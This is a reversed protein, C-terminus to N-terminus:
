GQKVRACNNKTRNPTRNLNNNRHGNYHETAQPKGRLENIMNDHHNGLHDQRHQNITHNTVKQNGHHCNQLRQKRISRCRRRLFRQRGTRIHRTRYTCLQQRYVGARNHERIQKRNRHSVISEEVRLRQFQNCDHKRDKDIHNQRNDHNTIPLDNDLAHILHNAIPRGRKYGASAPIVHVHRIRLNGCIQALTHAARCTSDTSSNAGFHRRIVRRFRCFLFTHGIFCLAIRFFIFFAVDFLAILVLGRLVRGHRDLGTFLLAATLRIIVSGTHTAFLRRITNAATDFVVHCVTPQRISYNRRSEAPRLSTHLTRSSFCRGMSTYTVSVAIRILITVIVKDPRISRDTFGTLTRFDIDIVTIGRLNLRSSRIVRIVIVLRLLIGSIGRCTQRRQRRVTCQGSGIDLILVSRQTIIVKLSNLRVCFVSHLRTHIAKSLTTIRRLIRQATLQGGTLFSRRIRCRSNCTQVLIIDYILGCTGASFRHCIPRQRLFLQILNRFRNLLLQRLTLQFLRSNLTSHLLGHPVFEATIQSISFLCRRLLNRRLRNRIILGGCRIRSLHLMRSHGTCPGSHTTFQGISFLLARNLSTLRCNSLRLILSRHFAGSYLFSRATSNGRCAALQSGVLTFSHLIQALRNSRIILIDRKGGCLFGIATLFQCRFLRLSCLLRNCTQRSTLRSNLTGIHNSSGLAQILQIRLGLTNNTRPRSRRYILRPIGCRTTASHIGTKLGAGRRHAYRRIRHCCLLRIGHIASQLFLLCPRLSHICLSRDGTHCATRSHTTRPKHIGARRLSRQRFGCLLAM